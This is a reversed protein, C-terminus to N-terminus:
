NLNKFLRNFRHNYIAIMLSVIKVKIIMKLIKGRDKTSQQTKQHHNEQRTTVKVEPESESRLNM